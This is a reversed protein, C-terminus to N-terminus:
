PRIVLIDERTHCFPLGEPQPLTFAHFGNERCQLIIKSVLVDTFKVAASVDSFSSLTGCDSSRAKCNAIAEDWRALFHKGFESQVFRRKLDENPIDALLLRGRPALLRAAADVFAFVSTEDRLCHIVSYAIVKTFLGDINVNPFQGCVFEARVGPFHDEIYKIVRPHDVGVARNVLFSLPVFVNGSGCGIDLLDDTPRIAMKQCLDFLINREDQAMLPYRGALETPSCGEISALEGYADFHTKTM